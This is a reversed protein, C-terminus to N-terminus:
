PSNKRPAASAKSVPTAYQLSSHRAVPCLQYAPFSGCQQATFSSSYSFFQSCSLSITEEETSFAKLHIFGHGRCSRGRMVQFTQFIINQIRPISLPSNSSEANSSCSHVPLQMLIMELM